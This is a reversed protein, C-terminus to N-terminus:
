QYGGIIVIELPISDQNKEGDKDGDEDVVADNIGYRDHKKDVPIESAGIISPHIGYISMISQRICLFIIVLPANSCIHNSISCKCRIKTYIHKMAKGMM